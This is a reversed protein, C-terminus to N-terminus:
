QLLGALFTICEESQETLDDKLFNWQADTFTEKGWEDEVSVFIGNQTVRWTTGETLPIALLVDALRIPRMVGTEEVGLWEGHGNRIDIQKKDSVIEPNAEICEQRILAIQQQTTM